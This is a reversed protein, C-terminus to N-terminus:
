NEESVQFEELGNCFRGVAHKGLWTESPISIISHRLYEAKSKESEVCRPDFEVSKDFAISASNAAESTLTSGLYSCGAFDQMIHDDPYRKTLERIQSRATAGLEPQMGSGLNIPSGHELTEQNGEGTIGALLKFIEVHGHELARHLPPYGPYDYNRPGAGSDLLLKVFKVFGDIVAAHLPSQNDFDTANVDAARSILLQAAQLNGTRAAVIHLPTAGDEDRPENVNDEGILWEILRLDPEPMELALHLPTGQIDEAVDTKAGQELLRRILGQSRSGVAYHLLSGGQPGRVNMDAGEGLLLEIIKENGSAVAAMLPFNHIGGPENPDHRGELLISGTCVLGFLASYYLGRPTRKKAHFRRRFNPEEWWRQQPNSVSDYLEWLEAWAIFYESELFEVIAKSGERTNDVKQAHIPWEYVAYLSFDPRCRLAIENISQNSGTTFPPSKLLSFHSWSEHLYYRNPTGDRLRPSTLYQTVSFHSIEVTNSQEHFTIFSGCYDLILADTDLREEEEFQKGPDIVAALALADVKLPRASYILWRLAKMVLYFRDNSM